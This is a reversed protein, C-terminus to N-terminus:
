CAAVAQVLRRLVDGDFDAGVEVRLEGVQIVYV